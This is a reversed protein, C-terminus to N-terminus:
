GVTLFCYFWPAELNKWLLSFLTVLSVQSHAELIKWFLAFLQTNGIVKDYPQM